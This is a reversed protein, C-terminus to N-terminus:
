ICKFKANLIFLSFNLTPTCDKKLTIYLLHRVQQVQLYSQIFKSSCSNLESPVSKSIALGLLAPVFPAEQVRLVDFRVIKMAKWLFFGKKKKVLRWVWNWM